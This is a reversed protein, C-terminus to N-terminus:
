QGLDEAPAQAADWEEKTVSGNADADATKFADADGVEELSLAGDANADLQTFQDAPVAADEQAYAPAALLAVVALALLASKTKM